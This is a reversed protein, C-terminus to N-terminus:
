KRVLDWVVQGELQRINETALNKAQNIMENNKNYISLGEGLIKPAMYITMKDWIDEEIFSSILTPGGEVLLSHIGKKFLQDLAKSHSTFENKNIFITKEKYEDDLLKLSPDFKDKQGYVVRYPIKNNAEIGMRITLSPNDNRLTNAGIAVADYKLRLLHVERRASENSIWKSDGSCTAMKGDLTQAVKIHVFPRLYTMAHFFVENLQKAEKECVGIIVEIGCDKLHKVGNGQVKPNPDINAIVVKAIKEKAILPACPPTRKDTHSCPELNCYLTSGAVLHGKNKADNIAEVEAHDKGAKKHYGQGIIQDDKILVSGVLPNPSVHGLGKKALELCLKMYKENM